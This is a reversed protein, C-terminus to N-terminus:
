STALGTIKAHANENKTESTYEGTVQWTQALDTTKPLPVAHLSNGQLPGFGIKGKTIVLVTDSPINRDLVIDVTGFDSTYTDVVVGATRDTRTTMRQSDLFKNVQRKQFANLFVHTPPSGATWCDQMAQLLFDEVLYAGAKAYANTSIIPLIGDMAGAVGSAAAVKRGDILNREFLIWAIKNLRALQDATENNAGVFKDTSAQTSTITFADQYITTYNFKGTKTTTRPTIPAAGQISVNTVIRIPALTVHAAATSGGYGRSGASITLTDTSISDLKLLESDIKLIDGAVLYVGQGATVTSTSVAGTGNLEGITAIATDLPRLVDELWEHKVATCAKELSDRGIINLLPVDSPSIMALGDAMDIANNATDSYTFRTGQIVAM